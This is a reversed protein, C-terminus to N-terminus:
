FTITTGIGIEFADYDDLGDPVSSIVNELEPDTDIWTYGLEGDIQIGPGLAYVATAVIRDQQAEFPEFPGVALEVDDERHSYQLGFTWADMTYAAGVGVVWIDIEQHLPGATLNAVDNFYEGAVGLSFNGFSLNVGAQYFDQENFEVGPVGDISVEWSGGLGATVGWGEGEYAYTLYASLDADAVDASEGPMGLHPGVGDTHNQRDPNPTYSANLQFGGFNPSIYVIKQADGTDDVGTCISNSSFVGGIAFLGGANAGWQNPSFASFNGTGGPPVVCAGALADDESGIRVEGFGGSFFVWAEDIQDDDTEGELEVRAGVELGNDLVTSGKFHIEADNFFGDTNRDTGFEDSDNDDFNVMYAEKFFGGVTLKIPEEAWAPGSAMGSVGLLACAAVGTNLTRKTM